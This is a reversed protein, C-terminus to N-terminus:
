ARMPASALFLESILERRMLFCLRLELSALRHRSADSCTANREARAGNAPLQGVEIVKRTSQSGIIRTENAQQVLQVKTLLM